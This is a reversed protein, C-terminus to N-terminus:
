RFAMFKSYGGGCRILPPNNATKGNLELFSFGILIHTDQQSGDPQKVKDTNYLVLIVSGHPIDTLPLEKAMVESKIKVPAMCPQTIVGTFRETKSKTTYELTIKHQETEVVKGTFTDGSYGPPYYGNPATGKQAMGLLCTSMLLLIAIKPRM